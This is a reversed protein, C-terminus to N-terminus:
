NFILEIPIYLFNYIGIVSFALIFLCILVYGLLVFFRKINIYKIYYRVEWYKEKIVEIAWSSEYGFLEYIVPLYYSNLLTRYTKFTSGSYLTINMLTRDQTILKTIKVKFNSWDYKAKNPVLDRDYLFVSEYGNIDKESFQTSYVKTSGYYFQVEGEVYEISHSTLNYFTINSHVERRNYNYDVNDIVSIKCIENEVNDTNKKYEEFDENELERFKNDSIKFFLIIGIIVGIFVSIGLIDLKTLNGNVFKIIPNILLFITVLLSTIRIFKNRKYIRKAKESINNDIQSDESYDQPRKALLDAFAILNDEFNERLLKNGNTSFLLNEGVLSDKLVKVAYPKVEYGLHSLYKNLHQKVESTLVELDLPKNIISISKKTIDIDKDLTLEKTFDIESMIKKANDNLNGILVVEYHSVTNNANIIEELTQKILTGSFNNITSKVQIAKTSKDKFEIIIDIKEQEPEVQISTWKNDKVSEFVSILGQLYYGRSGYRGGHIIAVGKSPKM